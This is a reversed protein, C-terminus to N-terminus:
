QAPRADDGLVKKYLAMLNREFMEDTFTTQVVKRGALGMRQCRGPDEAAQNLCSALSAADAHPYLWGTVGDTVLEPIGDVSTAIVPRACGMGELIALPLGEWHTSHVQVDIAGMLRQVDTRFGALRFRDSVGARGIEGRVEEYFGDGAKYAGCLLFYVDKGKAIVQAAAHILTKYDKQPAIRGFMGFLTAGSPISFEARVAPRESAYSALAQDSAPTIGDYLVSGRKPPVSHLFGRWTDQSVFAFHNVPLLFARDRRQIDTHRNRVHCLVPLGALRGALAGSYAALVDACHVLDVRLRKLERALAYSQKWFKPSRRVLSPFPREPCMVPVQEKRFANLLEETPEFFLAVSEVGHRASAQIVRLTAIETGGLGPFPMLHAVKFSHMEKEFADPLIPTRWRSSCNYLQVFM